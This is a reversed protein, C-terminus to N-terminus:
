PNRAHALQIRLQTVVKETEITRSRLEVIERDHQLIRELMSAQVTSMEVVTRLTWGSLALVLTLLITNLNLQKM